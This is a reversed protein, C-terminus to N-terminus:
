PAPKVLGGWSIFRLGERRITVTNFHSHRSHTWSKERADTACGADSLESRPFGRGTWEGARDREPPAIASSLLRSTPSWRTSDFVQM